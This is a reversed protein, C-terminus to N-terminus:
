AASSATDSAQERGAALANVAPYDIKGTGLVPLRKVTVVRRPVALESIGQERAEAQLARRDLEACDTVLVLQEGKRADAVAAVAHMHGPRCRAVFEEVAALSVMEGGVKAFRKARGCIRVFGEEDIDVIDGTDYWGEGFESSPPVCRGPEDERLYGLMINPGRVHLRRGTSVGPVDVLRYEIGPLLRGVTGIRNDMPTNSALVPSTETTGYGELVRVGFRDSWVRRTEEQLPEAGAFVYRLTYFDYPHAFRAYGRLFTNTGFLITAGVDYSMEPVIRYHLPTPYFFVRMGSIIPLITGATLGFSHFMPLANFIVDQAQYDVRAAIQACNALINRHSLVVGKPTGESGSTFLVVAADDAQPNRAMARHSLRAFALDLLGRLRALLGIGAVLDELYIVRRREALRAVVEDLRARTVFQRSTLVVRIEAAACAGQLARLGTTFNLMAPVRGAAQLGFFTLAAANTNPLLVGVKEAVSTETNLVRALIFSRLIMQRYSMPQRQIDEVVVHRSGTTHAADLLARFLSRETNATEFMMNTMIDSLAQGAWNRRARGRLEAPPEIRRPPLITLSIRPFWRLRLRGRMRSFPTYQAGDIRVPLVMAASRDAVMGPGYYIKMLSGTVTIRGEPFIVVRNDARLFKILSKLSLPNTPDLRFLKALCLFPRFYWRQAIRTNIAFSPQSPLFVALLLADIFSTHNAVILVREGAQHYHALGRVDVRYILKLLIRLCARLM